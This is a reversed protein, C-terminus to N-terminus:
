KPRRVGVPRPMEGLREELERVRRALGGIMCVLLCSDKDGAKIGLRHALSELMQHADHYEQPIPEVGDIALMLRLFHATRTDFAHREAPKQVPPAPATTQEDVEAEMTATTM